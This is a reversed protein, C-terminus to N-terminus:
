IEARLGRNQLCRKMALKSKHMTTDFEIEIGTEDRLIWLGSEAKFLEWREIQGKSNTAEIANVQDRRSKCKM